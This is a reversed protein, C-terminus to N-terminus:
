RPGSGSGRRPARGTGCALERRVGCPPVGLLAHREPRDLLEGLLAEEAHRDGLFPAADAVVRARDHDHELLDRPDRRRQRDHDRHVVRDARQGTNRNPVSACRWRKRGRSTLVRARRTRARPAPRPIRRRRARPSRPARRAILVHEVAALVPHRVADVRADVQDERAGVLRRAVAADRREDDLLARRAEHEALGLVLHAQAPGLGDRERELVQAHRGFWSSPASPSPKRIAM